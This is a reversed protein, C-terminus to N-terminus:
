VLDAHLDAHHEAVRLGGGTAVRQLEVGRHTQVDAADARDLLAFLHDSGRGLDLPDLVLDRRRELLGVEVDQVALANRAFALHDVQAALVPDDIFGAGPVAVVAVPDPLALVVCAVVQALARGQRQLDLVPNALADADGRAARLRRRRFLGAEFSSRRAMASSARRSKLRASNRPRSSREATACPPSPSTSWASSM